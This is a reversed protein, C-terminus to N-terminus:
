GRSGENFIEEGNDDVEVVTYEADIVYEIPLSAIDENVPFMQGQLEGRGIFMVQKQELVQQGQPTMVVQQGVVAEDLQLIVWKDPAVNVSIIDGIKVEEGDNYCMKNDKLM